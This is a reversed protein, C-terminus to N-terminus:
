FFKYKLQYTVLLIHYVHSLYLDFRSEFECRLHHYARIAYTTLFGVAMRDCGRRGRYIKISDLTHREFRNESCQTRSAPKWRYM